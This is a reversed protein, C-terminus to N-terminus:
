KRKSLLLIDNWEFRLIEIAVFPSQLNVEELTSRRCADSHSVKRREEFEISETPSLFRVHCRSLPFPRCFYTPRAPEFLRVLGGLQSTCQHARARTQTHITAQCFDQESGGNLASSDVIVNANNENTGNHWGCVTCVQLRTCPTAPMGLLASSSM